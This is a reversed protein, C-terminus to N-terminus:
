FKEFRKALVLSAEIKTHTRQALQDNSPISLPTYEQIQQKLKRVVLTWHDSLIGNGNTQLQMFTVFKSDCDLNTLM